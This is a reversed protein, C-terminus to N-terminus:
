WYPCQWWKFYCSWHCDWRHRWLNSIFDESRDDPPAGGPAQGVIPAGIVAPLNLKTNENVGTSLGARSRTIQQEDYEGIVPDDPLVIDYMLYSGAPLSGVQQTLDPDAYVDEKLDELVVLVGTGLASEQYSPLPPLADATEVPAALVSARCKDYAPTETRLAEACDALVNRGEVDPIARDLAFLDPNAGLNNVAQVLRELLDGRLPTSVLACIQTTEWTLCMQESGILAVPRAERVLLPLTRIVAPFEPQREAGIFRVVEQGPGLTIAYTDPPLEDHLQQVVSLAGLVEEPKEIDPQERRPTLLFAIGTDPLAYFVTFERALEDYILGNGEAVGQLKQEESLPLLVEPVLPPTVVKEVEKQVEVTVVKEVEKEVVVTEEIVQPAPTPGCVTLVLTTMVLIAVM